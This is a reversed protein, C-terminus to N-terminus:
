VGITRSCTGVDSLRSNLERTAVEVAPARSAEGIAFWLGALLALGLVLSGARLLRPWAPWPRRYWPLATRQAIATLVRSALTEPAALEPLAQLERQITDAFRQTDPINM